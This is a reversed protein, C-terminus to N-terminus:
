QMSHCGPGPRNLKGLSGVAASYRFPRLLDCGRVPLGRRLFSEPLNLPRRLRLAEPVDEYFDEESKAGVEHLMAQKVRPVSNPIYPYVTAQDDNM